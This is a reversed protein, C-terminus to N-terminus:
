ISRRFSPRGKHLGLSLYIAIKSWFIYKFFNWNYIKKLRPYDFYQIRIPIWGLGSGSVSFGSGFCQKMSQTTWCCLICYWVNLKKAAYQCEDSMCVWWVASTMLLLPIGGFMSTWWGSIRQALYQIAKLLLSWWGSYIETASTTLWFYSYSETASTMLWYLQLCCLDDVLYLKWYSLDDVLIAKM